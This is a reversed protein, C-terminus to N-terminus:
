FCFSVISQAFFGREELVDM